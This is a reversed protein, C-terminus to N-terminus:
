TTKEGQLSKSMKGYPSEPSHVGKKDFHKEFHIPTINSAENKGGFSLPKIHHADYHNGEKKMLKDNYYVDEKYKPWEAGNMESWEERLRWRNTDFEAEKEEREEPSLKEWSTGDDEITEPFESNSKLDEYYQRRLEELSEPQEAKQEVMNTKNATEDLANWGDKIKEEATPEISKEAKREIGGWYETMKTKQVVQEVIKVFNEMM